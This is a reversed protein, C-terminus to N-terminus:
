GAAPTGRADARVLPGVLLRRPGAADQQGFTVRFTLEEVGDGDIDVKFEYMAEPHFGQVDQAALSHCVNMVFVTGRGGGFLYVDSIDLRVDDRAIPSDSHHSM